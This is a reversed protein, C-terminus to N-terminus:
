KIRYRVGLYTNRGFIPGWILSSDFFPGFPDDYALIPKDQRFNLINEMGLYVEFTENFVKTVQANMIVYDPSRDPLQYQVPNSITTPIRKQGQWNITYDLKWNRNTKYGLNLFARHAAILPKQLLSGNYTTKVDYWRYAIRVDFRQALEYDMQVQISNSYSKGDLNYFVATQPSRELDLVIQNSFETRYFDFSLTGDRYNLTFDQTLNLGFNWAAEPELGYPKSSDDGVIIIERSSSLLGNHESLVNATRQGRGMSARAVTNDSFAYRLHLRPTVFVGFLNHHDARLGAVLNFKEGSRYTYEFYAGPIIEERDYETANLSESYNDYQLSAGTIFEHNTNSFISKYMLNAYFTNQQADYNNLGFRSDQKHYAGTIQLGITKWPTQTFVKGIKAWGEYRQVDLDMKWLDNTLTDSQYILNKQGGRSDIVTGKLGFQLRMGNAGIYKWRNIGIFHNELPKDLFGDENRDWEVSSNKGHILLSSSWKDDNFRKALIANAEIRGGENIYANLFFPDSNEPKKLEINIQGAISEYGSTVSGAGKNLHISEVWPGPIYTLGYIASFGRVSPLGERTIQTNPGSLGLMQIQRTGTIADTFSVDVSPTTEFSESINCCAAKLLEQESIVEVKMPNSFSIETPKKREVVEIEDLLVPSLLVSMFTEGATQLTDNEYGVYTVVLLDIGEAKTLSFEGNENTVSGRTTGLWFVNAGALAQASGDVETYVRGELLEQVSQAKIASFTFVSCVLVFASIVNKM